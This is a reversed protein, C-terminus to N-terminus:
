NKELRSLIKGNKDSTSDTAKTKIVFQALKEEDVNNAQDRLGANEVELDYIVDGMIEVTQCYVRRQVLASQGVVAKEALTLDYFNDLEKDITALVVENQKVKSVIGTVVDQSM